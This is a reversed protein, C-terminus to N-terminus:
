ATRYCVARLRARHDLFVGPEREELETLGRELTAGDGTLAAVLLDADGDRPDDPASPEHGLAARAFGLADDLAGAAFLALARSQQSVHCYPAADVARASQALALEVRGVKAYLIGLREPGQHEWPRAAAFAVGCAIADDIRNRRVQAEIWATFAGNHRPDLAFAREAAADAEAFRRNSSYADAREAWAGASEPMAAALADLARVDGLRARLGAAILQWELREEPDVQAVRAEAARAALERDIARFAYYVDFTLHPPVGGACRARAWALADAGRGALRHASMWADEAAELEDADVEPDAALATLDLRRALEYARQYRDSVCHRNILAVLGVHQSPAAQLARALAREAERSRGLATLAAAEADHVDPDEATRVPGLIALAAAPDHEVLRWALRVRVFALDPVLEVLTTLLERAEDDAVGSDDLLRALRWVANPDGPAREHLIRALAIAHGRQYGRELADVTARVLDDDALHAEALARVQAAAAEGTTLAALVEFLPGVLRERGDHVADFGARLLEAADATRGQRRLLGVLALYAAPEGPAREVARRRDREAGELDGVDERLEALAALASLRDPDLELAREFGAIARARDGRRWALEAAVVHNFPNTPGGALAVESFHAARRAVEAPAHALRTRLHRPPMAAGRVPRDADDEDSDADSEADSDADADSDSESEADSDSDSDSEADADADADADAEAETRSGSALDEIARRYVATLNEAARVCDPGETLAALLYREASALDGALWRAEGMMQLNHEDHSDARSTSMAEVFAEDYLGRGFLSRAHLQHVWEEGGFRLRLFMLDRLVEADSGSGRRALDILAGHRRYLALRFSPAEALAQDCLRVIEAPSLEELAGADGGTARPRRRSCEDVLRLHTREVLGAADCAARREAAAVAPGLVVVAGNGFMVGAAETFTFAKIVPQHRMPDQVVFVGLADDYGTIVAVHSSTSYEEQVIVPCGLDLAARIREATAEFRRAEVGLDALHRVIEYMPTGHERKVVLAISDQDATFAFYRLVLELVAPGCYNWKQATTPFATLEHRRAEAPAAELATMRERAYRGESSDPAVQWAARLAAIAAARDGTAALALGLAIRDSSALDGDPRGDLLRRWAALEGDRDGTAAAIAARTRQAAGWHRSTLPVAALTTEAEAFSGLVYHLTGLGLRAAGHDAVVALAAHYADRAAPRDDEVLAAAARAVHLGPSPGVRALGDDIAARALAPLRKRVFATARLEHLLAREGGALDRGALADLELLVEDVNGGGALELRASALHLAAVDGDARAERALARAARWREERVARDIAALTHEVTTPPPAPLTTM